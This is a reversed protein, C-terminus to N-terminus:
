GLVVAGFAENPEHQVVQDINEYFKYTNAGIANFVKGSANVFRMPPPSDTDNLHYLKPHKKIEKLAARTSGGKAFGRLFLLNGYTRSRYVFYGKPM